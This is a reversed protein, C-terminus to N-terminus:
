KSAAIMCHKYMTEELHPFPTDPLCGIDIVNAGDRRYKEARGLINEITVMPADVIEAFIDVDYQSLDILRKCDRGFFVPLDKLDIPGRVCEIGLAEPLSQCIM